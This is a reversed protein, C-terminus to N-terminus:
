REATAASTRLYQIFGPDAYAAPPLDDTLLATDVEAVETLSKRETQDSVVVLGAILALVPVASILARWWTGGENGSGGLTMTGGQIQTSAQAHAVMGISERRRQDLARVRAARLRETIEYPLQAQGEGLRATIKRAFIEASLESHFITETTM